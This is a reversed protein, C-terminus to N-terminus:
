FNIRSFYHWTRFVIFDCDVSCCCFCFILFNPRMLILFKRSKGPPATTLFRGALAPSVPELGPGPLDWMGCLVQAQAGYSSLRREPAWSGCSSLGCAVVVSSRAGLARAGCCSFGGCHSARAGCCLTVGSVAVLSLWCAAVFVWCLWFYIILLYIFLILSMQEKFAWKFLIFLCAVSQSVSNCVVSRIFIQQRSYM